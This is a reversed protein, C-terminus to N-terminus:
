QPLRLRLHSLLQATAPKPTVVVRLYLESREAGQMVLLLVDVSESRRTTQSTAPRLHGPRQLTNM